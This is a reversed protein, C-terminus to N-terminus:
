KKRRTVLVVVVVIVILVLLCLCCLLAGGGIYLWNSGSFLGANLDSEAHLTRSVGPKLNWTLTSGKVSDANNSGVRGPVSLSWSLGVLSSVQNSGSSMDITVDYVLKGDTIDLQNITIGQMDNYTSELASLDAFPVTAVCWTEDGRQEQKVTAGPPLQGGQQDAFSCLDTSSAGMGELTKVEDATFGIGTQTNGSGDSKVNTTIQATCASLLLVALTLIIMLLISRKMIEEKGHIVPINENSAM